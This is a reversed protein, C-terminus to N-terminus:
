VTVMASAYGNLPALMGRSRVEREKVARFM